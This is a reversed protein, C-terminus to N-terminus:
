VLFFSDSLVDKCPFLTIFRTCPIHKRCKRYLKSKQKRRRKRFHYYVLVSFYLFYSCLCFIYFWICVSHTCVVKLSLSCVKHSQFFHNFISLAFCFVFFNFVFFVLLLLSIAAYYFSQYFLIVHINFRRNRVLWLVKTLNIYNRFVINM